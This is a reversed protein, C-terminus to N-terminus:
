NWLATNTPSSNNIANINNWNNNKINWQWFIAIWSLFTWALFVIILIITIIKIAKNSKKTKNM